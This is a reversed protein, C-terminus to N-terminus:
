PAEYLLVQTQEIAQRFFPNRIPGPEVLDVPVGFLQQLEEQLVFYADAHQAPSMPEFEVLVDLDSRSPDFAGGAASGFLSLRRVGRRGCLNGLEGIKSQVVPSM